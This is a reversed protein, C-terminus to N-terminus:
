ARGVRFKVMIDGQKTKRTKVKVIRLIQEPNGLKMFEKRRDICEFPQVKRGASEGLGKSETKAGKIKESGIGIMKINNMIILAKGVAQQADFSESIRKYSGDVMGDGHVPIGFYFGGSIGPALEFYPSVQEFFIGFIDNQKACQDFTM